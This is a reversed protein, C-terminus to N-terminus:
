GHGCVPTISGDLDILAYTVPVTKCSRSVETCRVDSRWSFRIECGVNFVSPVIRNCLPDRPFDLGLDPLGRCLGGHANCIIITQSAAFLTDNLEANHYIYRTILNTFGM